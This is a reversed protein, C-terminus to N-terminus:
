SELTLLRTISQNSERYFDKHWQEPTQKKGCHGVNENSYGARKLLRSRPSYLPFLHELFAAGVLSTSGTAYSSTSGSSEPSSSAEMHGGNDEIQYANETEKDTDNEQIWILDFPIASSITSTPLLGNALLSLASSFSHGTDMSSVRELELESIWDGDDDTGEGGSEDGFSSCGDRDSNNYRPDYAPPRPFSKSEAAQLQFTMESSGQQFCQLPTGPKEKRKPASVVFKAPTPTPPAPTVPMAKVKWDRNPMGPKEEWLFPVMIQQKIRKRCGSKHAEKEEM